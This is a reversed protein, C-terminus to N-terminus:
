ESQKEPSVKCNELIANMAKTSGRASFSDSFKNGRIDFGVQIKDKTDRIGAIIPWLDDKDSSAVVGMRKDNWSRTTAPIKIVASTSTKFFLEAPMSPVDEFEKKPMIVALLTSEDTACQIVLTSQYGEEAALVKKAGFVDPGDVNSDWAFAQTTITTAIITLRIKKM